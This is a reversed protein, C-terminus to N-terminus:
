KYNKNNEMWNKVLEVLLYLLAYIVLAAVATAILAALPEPADAPSGQKTFFRLFPMKAEQFLLQFASAISIFGLIINVLFESHASKSDSINHLSSDMTDMSFRLKEVDKELELRQATRDFMIKHAPFKYMKVIDLQLIMRSLRLSLEANERILRRPAKRTMDMSTEVLRDAASALIYKRALVIQLIVLYEPWSVHYMARERLHEIWDVGRSSDGRLGYTGLVLCVSSGCIVLDDTDIAIDGGCVDDYDRPDRYPWEKPYLTLLGMLEPKHEDRICAVIKESEETTRWGFFKDPADESKEVRLEVNEWIDVMAYHLDNEVTGSFRFGQRDKRSVDKRFQTCSKYIFTKYRLAIEDFHRGKMWKDFSDGEPLFRGEADFHLDHVIFRSELNIDTKGPHESDLIDKSWFEAGVWTSLLAVVDDTTADRALTATAGDFLFRYTISVVHGFFLSMEVNCHGKMRQCERGLTADKESAYLPMDFDFGRLSFRRVNRKEEPKEPHLIFIQEEIERRALALPVNLADAREIFRKSQEDYYPSGPVTAEHVLDPLKFQRAYHISFTQIFVASFGPYYLKEETTSM